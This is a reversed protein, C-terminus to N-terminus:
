KKVRYKRYETRNWHYKKEPTLLPQNINGYSNYSNIAQTTLLIGNPLLTEALSKVAEIQNPHHFIGATHEHIIDAGPMNELWLRSKLKATDVGSIFKVLPKHEAIFDITEQDFILPKERLNEKFATDHGIREVNALHRNWATPTPYKKLRYRAERIAKQPTFDPELNTAVLKLKGTAIEERFNAAIAILSAAMMSGLDVATVTEQNPLRTKIENAFDIETGKLAPLKEGITRFADAFFGSNHAYYTKILGFNKETM